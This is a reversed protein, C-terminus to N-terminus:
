IRQDTAPPLLWSGNDHFFKQQLEPGFRGLKRQMTNFIDKGGEIHPYDTAFCLVDALDHRDLYVDAKEFPFFSVRINSKVYTSPLERLKRPNQNFKGMSGYWMDMVEMLPGIWHAGAEMVGMRLVPHREFVGGLVMNAVFNQFPLHVTSLSYPDVNFEGLSRFGRFAEARHWAPSAFLQGEGGIHLTVTCDAEACMAWLPDVSSHSPAYGGVPLGAPLWIARIGNDILRRATAIVEPLTEEAIPAVPRVRDSNKAFDILWDQYLSICRRALGVRDGAIRPFFAPDEANMLLTTGYLGVSGPFMLQRDIGMVDM